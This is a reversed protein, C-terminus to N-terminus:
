LTTRPNFNRVRVLGAVMATTGWGCWVAVGCGAGSIALGCGERVRISGASFGCMFGFVLIM